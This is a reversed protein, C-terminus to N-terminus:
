TNRAPVYTNPIVTSSQNSNKPVKLDSETLSSGKFFHPDLKQILHPIKLQKALSKAKSIEIKHKQQYLFSLAILPLKGNSKKSFKKAALYLCTASDLGGSLLIVAGSEKIALAETSVPVQALKM